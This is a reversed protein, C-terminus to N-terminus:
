QSDSIADINQALEFDKKTLGGSDHTTLYLEVSIYDLQIRPHHNMSNALRSVRNVFELADTPKDFKYVRVLSSQALMSWELGLKSFLKNAKDTDLLKYM